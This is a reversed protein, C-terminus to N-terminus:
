NRSLFQPITCGGGGLTLVSTLKDRQLCLIASVITRCYGENLHGHDIGVLMNKKPVLTQTQLHKLHQYAPNKVNFYGLKFHSQIVDPCSKLVLRRYAENSVLVEEVFVEENEFIYSCDGLEDGDSLYPVKGVECGSQILDKMVSNLEKKVM